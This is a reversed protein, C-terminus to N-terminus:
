FKQGMWFDELRQNFRPRVRLHVVWGFPVLLTPPDIQIEPRSVNYRSPGWGPRLVPEGQRIRRQQGMVHNHPREVRM